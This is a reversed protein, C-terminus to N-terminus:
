YDQFCDGLIHLMVVNGTMGMILNFGVFLLTNKLFIKNMTKPFLGKILFALFIGFMGFIAGSAGVSIAQAHMSISSLSAIVGTLIYYGWFKTKGIIPELLTGIYLLAFMNLLLHFIGAHLFMNTILRWWEGNLVELKHNAGWKLLSSIHFSFFGDGAVVMCVFVLINLLMLIPTSHFGERPKLAAFSFSDTERQLSNLVVPDESKLKTAFIITGIILGGVLLTICFWLILNGFRKEFPEKVQKFYIPDKYRVLSSELIANESRQRLKNNGLLELYEFQNFNTEGIERVVHEKFDNYAQAKSEASLRNSISKHYEVSLWYSCDQRVTDRTKEFIPLTICINYNLTAGKSSISSENYLGYKENWIFINHLTCYHPSGKKEFETINQLHEMKGAAKQLYSLALVTSLTIVIWSLFLLPFNVNARDNKPKLLNFRPLMFFYLPIWPLAMPVYLLFIEENFNFYHNPKLVVGDILLYGFILTLSLICLPRFILQYKLKM